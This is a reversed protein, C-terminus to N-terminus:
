QGKNKIKGFFLQPENTGLYVTTLQINLLYFLYIYMTEFLYSNEDYNYRCRSKSQTRLNRLISLDLRLNTYTLITMDIESLAYNNRYCYPFFHVLKGSRKERIYIHPTIFFYSNWACLYVRIWAEILFHLLEPSHNNCIM